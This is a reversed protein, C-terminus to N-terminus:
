PTSIKFPEVCQTKDVPWIKRRFGFIKPCVFNKAWLYLLITFNKLLGSPSSTSNTHTTTNTITSTHTKRDNSWLFGILRKLLDFYDIRALQDSYDIRAFHRPDIAPTSYSSDDVGKYNAYNILKFDKLNFFFWLPFPRNARKAWVMQPHLLVTGREAFLVEKM